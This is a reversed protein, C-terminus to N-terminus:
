LDVIVLTGHSGSRVQHPTGAKVLYMEGGAVTLVEGGIDLELKGDMVILAENCAHTEQTYPQQDMRLVKIRAPGVAGVVTSSWAAPLTAALQILDIHPMASPHWVWGPMHSSSTRLMSFGTAAPLSYERMDTHPFATAPITLFTLAESTREDKREREREGEDV